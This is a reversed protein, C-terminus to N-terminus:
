ASLIWQLNYSQTSSEACISINAACPVFGTDRGPQLQQGAATTATGGIMWRINASSIDENMLIFGIANAPVSETKVTSVTSESNSGNANVPSKTSLGGQDSAVTVPLSGSKTTQGLALASGGIQTINQTWPGASQTVPIAAQNSALVVPISAAMLTQGLALASGGIQTINAPINSQNSSLVVPISAAMLAQGLVVAAGGVKDLNVPVDSQNSALVVPISAAMLAQGLVVVAGGVKDLNFPVDTQDSAIVVSIASAKVTQGIRAAQLNGSVDEAGILNAFGPIASNIAGDSAVNIIASGALDASSM